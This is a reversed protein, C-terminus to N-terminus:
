SRCSWSRCVRHIGCVLREVVVDWESVPAPFGARDEHPWSAEGSGHLSALVSFWLLILNEENVEKKTKPSAVRDARKEHHKTIERPKAQEEGRRGKMSHLMRGNGHGRAKVADEVSGSLTIM